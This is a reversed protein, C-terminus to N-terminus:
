KRTVLIAGMTNGTGYKQTAETASLHRVEKIDSAPMNKLVNVDGQLMGDVYVRIYEPITGVGTSSIGRTQLFTPRLQQIAAYLDAQRVTTLEEVTILNADRRPTTPTQTRSSAASACGITLALTLLAARPIM